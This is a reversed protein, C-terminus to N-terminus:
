STPALLAQGQGLRRVASIIETIGVSKHMVGAAGALMAQAYDRRDRSSTLILVAGHPNTVCLSRVLDCGSGDALQLEITAVDVDELMDRAAALGSGQAVVTIDPEQELVYALAQRFATHADVVLIRLM